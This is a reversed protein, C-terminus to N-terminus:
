QLNGKSIKTLLSSHPTLLTRHSRKVSNKDIISMNIEQLYFAKKSSFCVM